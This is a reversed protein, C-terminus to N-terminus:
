AKGLDQPVFLRWRTILKESPMAPDLRANGATLNKRVKQMTIEDNLGYKELLYGLRKFIAGNNMRKSYDFLSSINRENSSLYAKLVDWLNRAGASLTPDNLMDVVTKTPDSFNIRMNDRWVTKMGFFQGQPITKILFQSSRIKPRRSNIKRPTLVVITRFIQETLGWQEAATWGGLYCPDFLRAAVIKPDESVDNPSRAEQPVPMYAGRRVRILWGQEVWRAMMKAMAKPPIGLLESAENVTFVPKSNRLIETLRTRTNGEIGALNKM